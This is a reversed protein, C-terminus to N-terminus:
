LYRDAETQEAPTLQHWTEDLCPGGDRSSCGAHGYKCPRDHEDSRRQLRLYAAVNPSPAPLPPAPTPRTM